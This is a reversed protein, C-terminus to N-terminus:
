VPEEGKAIPGMYRFAERHKMSRGSARANEHEIESFDVRTGAARGDDPV